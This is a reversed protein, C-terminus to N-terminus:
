WVGLKKEFDTTEYNVWFTCNRCLFHRPTNIGSVYKRIQNFNLNNFVEEICNNSVNGLVVARRWDQCCLVIAGDYLIHIWKRSRLSICSKLHFFNFSRRLFNPTHEKISINGARNCPNFIKVIIDKKEGYKCWKEIDNEPTYGKFLSVIVIEPELELFHKANRAANSNFSNLHLVFQINAYKILNSRMKKDLLICNTSIEVPINSKKRTFDLISLLRGDLLPENQLYPILFNGGKDIFEKVLREIIPTPMIGMPQENRIEPHPCYPCNKNCHSTTQLQMIEPFLM